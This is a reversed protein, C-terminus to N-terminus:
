KVTTNSSQGVLYDIIGACNRITNSSQSSTFHGVVQESIQRYDSLYCLNMKNETNEAHSGQRYGYKRM